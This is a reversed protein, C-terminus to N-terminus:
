GPGSYRSSIRCRDRICMENAVANLQIGRSECLLSKETLVVDLVENGTNRNADYLRAAREAEDQRKYVDLHTYSVPGMVATGGVIVVPIQVAIQQEPVVRQLAAILQAAHASDRICM